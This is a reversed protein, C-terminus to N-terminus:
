KNQSRSKELEEELEIICKTLAENRRTLSEIYESTGENEDILFGIRVISYIWHFTFYGFYIDYWNETECILSVISVIFLIIQEKFIYPIERNWYDILWFLITLVWNLIKKLWNKM